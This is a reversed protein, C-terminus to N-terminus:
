ELGKKQSAPKTGGDELVSIPKPPITITIRVTGRFQFDGLMHAYLGQMFGSQQRVLWNKIKSAEDPSSQRVQLIGHLTAGHSLNEILTDTKISYSLCEDAWSRYDTAVSTQTPGPDMKILQYKEEWTDYKVSCVVRMDPLAEQDNIKKASIALLTFTSFGSNVIDRQAPTLLDSVNVTLSKQGDPSWKATTTALRPEDALSKSTGGLLTTMPIVLASIFTRALSIKMADVRPFNKAM